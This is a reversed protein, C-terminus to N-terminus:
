PHAKRRWPPIKRFILEMDRFPYRCHGFKEGDQDAGEEGNRGSEGSRVDAGRHSGGGAGLGRGRSFGLGVFHFGLSVLLGGLLLGALLSGLLSSRLSFFLLRLGVVAKRSSARRRAPMKKPPWLIGMFGAMGAQAASASAATSSGAAAWSACSFRGRTVREAPMCWISAWTACVGSCRAVPKINRFSIGCCSPMSNANPCGEICHKQIFFVKNGSVAANTASSPVTTLRASMFGCVVSEWQESLGTRSTSSIF